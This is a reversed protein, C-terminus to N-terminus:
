HGEINDPFPAPTEVTLAYAGDEAPEICAFAGDFGGHRALAARIEAQAAGAAMATSFTVTSVCDVHNGTGSANGTWSVAEVIEADPIREAVVDRLRATQRAAAAHNACLGFLEYFAFAGALALPLLLALVCFRKIWKM